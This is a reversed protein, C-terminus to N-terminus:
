YNGNILDNVDFTVKTCFPAHQGNEEFAVHILMKNPEFVVAPDIINPAGVPLEKLLEWASDVSLHEQGASNAIGTMTTNILDYRWCEIPQNRDRYHNTCIQFFAGAEPQRITLGGNISLNGDYEFVVSASNINDYPMTVMICHRGHTTRSRFINEMNEIVSSPHAFELAERTILYEPSFGSNVSPQYGNDASNRNLTIGASNIGVSCGIFGPYGITVTPLVSGGSEPVRVQIMQAIGFLGSHMLNDDNRGTITHGDSTM